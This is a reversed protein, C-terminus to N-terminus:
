FRGSPYTLRRSYQNVPYLGMQVHSIGRRNLLATPYSPQDTCTHETEGQHQEEITEAMSAQMIPILCDVRLDGSLGQEGIGPRGEEPIASGKEMFRGQVEPKRGEGILHDADALQRCTEPRGNEAKTHDHECEDQTHPNM